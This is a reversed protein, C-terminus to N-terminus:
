VDWIWGFGHNPCWSVSGVPYSRVVRGGLIPEAPMSLETVHIPAKCERCRSLLGGQAGPPPPPPWVDRLAAEALQGTSDALWLDRLYTPYSKGSGPPGEREHPV